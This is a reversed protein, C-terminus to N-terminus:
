VNFNKFYFYTVGDGKDTNEIMTGALLDAQISRYQSLRGILFPDILTFIIKGLGELSRREKRDGMLIGPRYINVSVFGLAKIAEELQGKTRLYFSKSHPDAGVSSILSLGTAGAQRAKKALAFAYDFDVTRLAIRSGATKITTGLCLYLHNCHPLEGNILFQKFDIELIEANAPLDEINRRALAVPRDGRAALQKLINSGVLGTAGAVISNKM